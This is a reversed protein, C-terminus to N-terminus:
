PFIITLPRKMKRAYRITAWTGSRLQEHLEKPTALMAHCSDVIIHNRELFPAPNHIVDSNHNARYRNTVSGSQGPYAITIYGLEAAIVAAEIDSGVCDGHLFESGRTFFALLHFRVEEKQRGRMGDKTGTFGVRIM